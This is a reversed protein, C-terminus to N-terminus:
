RIILREVLKLVEQRFGEFDSEEKESLAILKWAGKLIGFIMHSLILGDVQIFNGSRVGDNLIMALPEIMLTDAEKEEEEVTRQTDLYGFYLCLDDHTDKGLATSMFENLKEKPTKPSNVITDMGDRIPKLMETHVYQMLDEKNNFYNYLSGKSVGTRKAVEEMTICSNERILSIVAKVIETKLFSDMM